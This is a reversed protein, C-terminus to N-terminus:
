RNLKNITELYKIAEQNNSKRVTDLLTGESNYGMEKDIFKPGFIKVATNIILTIIQTWNKDKGMTGIHDKLLDVFELESLKFDVKNNSFANNITGLVVAALQFKNPYGSGLIKGLYEIDGGIGLFVSDSREKTNIYTVLNDIIAKQAPFAGAADLLIRISENKINTDDYNGSALATISLGFKQDLIKKISEKNKTVYQALTKNTHAYSNIITLAEYRSDSINIIQNIIETVQMDAPLAPLPATEGAPTGSPNQTIWRKIQNWYDMGFIPTSLFVM